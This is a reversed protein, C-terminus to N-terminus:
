ARGACCPCRCGTLVMTIQSRPVFTINVVKSPSCSRSVVTKQVVPVACRDNCLLPCLTRAWSSCRSRSCSHGFTTSSSSSLVRQVAPVQRQHACARRRGQRPLPISPLRKKRRNKKKRMTRRRKRREILEARERLIASLSANQRSTLREPGIALLADM